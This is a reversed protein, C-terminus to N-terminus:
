KYPITFTVKAGTINKLQDNIDEMIMTIKKNKKNLIQLRELTITSAFSKHESNQDKMTLSKKFGIGNDQVEFILEGDTLYFRINILGKQNIGKLGHEISNEIFPQALMPPIETENTDINESVEITYDFHDEHRLKQLDLYYRLTQIEKELSVYEERSNELILRMLRAFDSLYRGAAKPENKYVFSEISTLSNFIFHPNMQSRLLKQELQIAQQKAKFKNQRIILFAVIIFLMLLLTLGGSLYKGKTVELTQIRAQQILAQNETEKKESEYKTELENIVKLNEKNLISDKLSVYEQYYKFANEYDKMGAYGKYLFELADREHQKADISQARAYYKKSQEIAKPYNKEHIFLNAINGTNELLKVELNLEEYLKYSQDFYLHAQKFNNKMRSVIGLGTYALALELKYDEKGEAIKKIKEFYIAAEDPKNQAFLISCLNNMASIEGKINGLENHLQQGRLYYKKASEFNNQIFYVNAINLLCIAIGNKDNLSENIKLCEINYELSKDYTGTLYFMAGLNGYASAMGKKNGNKKHIDIAKTLSEVAEKNQGKNIYIIGQINYAEALKRDSNIKESLVIAEKNFELAKNFDIACYIKSLQNYTNVKQTDNLSSNLAHLLSDKEANQQANILFSSLLFILIPFIRNKKM